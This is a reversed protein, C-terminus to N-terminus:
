STKEEEDAIGMCGRLKEVARHRIVRVHGETLSLSSAVDSASRDEYFSLLIVTRERPSLAELCQALRESALPDRTPETAGEPTEDDLSRERRGARNLEKAILRASGLVFSAIREPERVEDARLKELTLLLVRQVLEEAAVRDRLHRLGYHRIRAGFRSCLEAEERPAHSRGAIRRALEGDTWERLESLESVKALLHWGVLRSVVSPSRRPIM